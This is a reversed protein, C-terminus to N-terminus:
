PVAKLLTMPDVPSGDQWVEFHLHPATSVGSNGLLAIPEGQHVREGPRAFLVQNHGYFTTFGSRHAVVILNGFRYTWDSFLVVGDAAALVPTGERAAIDLGRHSIQRFSAPNLYRRSVYGHVPPLTPIDMATYSYGGLSRADAVPSTSAKMVGSSQEPSKEGPLDEFSPLSSWPLSELANEDKGSLARRLQQEFSKLKTLEAGMRALEGNSGELETVKRRLPEVQAARQAVIWFLVTEVTAYLLILIAAAVITIVVKRPLHFQRVGSEDEPIVLLKWGRGKSVAL